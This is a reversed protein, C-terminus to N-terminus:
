QVSMMEDYLTASREGADYRQRLPAFLFSLAVDVNVGPMGRLSKYRAVVLDFHGKAKDWDESSLFKVSPTDEAAPAPFLNPEWVKFASLLCEDFSPAPEGEVLKLRFTSVALDILSSVSTWM